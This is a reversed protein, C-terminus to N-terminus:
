RGLGGVEKAIFLQDKHLTEQRVEKIEQPTPLKSHM